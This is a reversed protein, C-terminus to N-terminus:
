PCAQGSAAIGADRPATQSTGPGNYSGVGTCNGARILYWLGYGGPAPDEADDIYPATVDNAVCAETAASYSGGTLLLTTLDGRM